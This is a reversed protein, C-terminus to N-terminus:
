PSSQAVAEFRAIASLRARSHDVCPFPYDRGLRLGAAALEAPSAEWPAHIAKARLARLEPCWTSIYLGEPDFRRGQLVPHFIRFYPAADTGTSAAWQWGGNNNALDGDLLGNMFHREGRRWDVGLDKTLFSAVIMRARNPMFGTARLQRMAADVVPYGTRGLTWAEFADGATEWRVRDYRARFAGHEVHPFHFLVHTLFDRWRLETLFKAAGARLATGRAGRVGQCAGRVAAVAQRPSLTGFKFDASLRSTADDALLDRREAYRALREECFAIL